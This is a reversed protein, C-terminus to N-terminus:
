MWGPMTMRKISKPPAKTQQPCKEPLRPNVGDLNERAAHPVPTKAPVQTGEELVGIGGPDVVTEEGLVTTEEGPGTEEAVASGDTLVPIQLIQCQLRLCPNQFIQSHHGM